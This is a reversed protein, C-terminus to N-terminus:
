GVNSIGAATRACCICLKQDRLAAFKGDLFVTDCGDCGFCTDHWYKGRFGFGVGTILKNCADCTDLTSQIYCKKCFLSKKFVVNDLGVQQCCVSCILCRKHWTLLEGAGSEMKVGDEGSIEAKCAYCTPLNRALFCNECFLGEGAKEYYKQNVLSINCQRCIFCRQHWNKEGDFVLNKVHIPLKCAKCSDSTAEMGQEEEIRSRVCNNCQLGEETLIFEGKRDALNVQCYVCTFCAAHFRKDRFKLGESVTEGCRACTEQFQLENCPSCVPRGKISHFSGQSLATGCQSCNFCGPHYTEEGFRIGEGLIVKGCTACHLAEMDLYCSECYYEGDKTGYVKELQVSCKKCCFCKKHFEKGDVILKIDDIDIIGGCKSCKTRVKSALCLECMLCGREYAYKQKSLDGGCNYCKFCKYHWAFGSELCIEFKVGRKCSECRDGDFGPADAIDEIEEEEQKDVVEIRTTVTKEEMIPSKTVGNTAAVKADNKKKKPSIHLFKKINEVTKDM